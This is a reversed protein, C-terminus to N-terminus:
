EANSFGGLALNFTDLFYTEFFSKPANVLSGDEGIGLYHIRPGKAVGKPEELFLISVDDAKLDGKVTLLRLRNILYESHTEIVYRRIKSRTAFYNALLAQSSPHLHVEPQNILLTGNKPLAVDAILIPLVQSIGFGVDAFSVREVHKYPQINLKLIEDLSSKTEIKSALELLQISRIVEQYKKPFYKKWEYLLAISNKGTPDVTQGSDETLYYRSPHVRVPGIYSTESHLKELVRQLELIIHMGAPYNQVEKFIEIPNRSKLKVWKSEHRTFLADINASKKAKGKSGATRPKDISSLVGKLAIMFEDSIMENHTDARIIAQYGEEHGSWKVEIGDGKNQYFIKNPLIQDGSPSYRYQGDILVENEGDQLSLGILFNNRTNQGHAIDRFSGLSCSRGNPIFEFPFVHPPQIQLIATLANLITSKGSSNTGTLLTIPRFDVQAKKFIKFNELRLQKIHM